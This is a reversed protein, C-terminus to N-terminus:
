TILQYRRIYQKHLIIRQLVAYKGFGSCKFYLRCLLLWVVMTRLGEHDAKHYANRNLEM